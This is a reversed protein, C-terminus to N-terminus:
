PQSACRTLPPKAPPTGSPPPTPESKCLLRNPRPSAWGCLMMPAGGLPRFKWYGLTIFHAPKPTLTLTPGSLLFSLMLAVNMEAFGITVAEALIAEMRKSPEFREGKKIGLNALMGLMVRHKERATESDIVAHLQRWYDMNKEWRLMPLPAKQGKVDIIRYSSPKGAESLPYVKLKQAYTVAEDYSGSKAVIRMAMVAKWTQSYFPHYGEPVDGEYGPPLLLDKEGKGKGPGIVGMDGFWEMNHDDMLGMYPGEPVEVVIPGAKLDFVAIVYPTDQNAVSFQQEPDQPMIIGVQNPIAGHPEFQQIVAETAVTPFFFKYAEIARRLDTANHAQKITEENAPFGRIFDYDTSTTTKM